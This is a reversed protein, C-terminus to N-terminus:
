FVSRLVRKFKLGGYHPIDANMTNVHLTILLGLFWSSDPPAKLGADVFLAQFTADMDLSAFKIEEEMSM